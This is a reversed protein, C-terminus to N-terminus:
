LRIEMFATSTWKIFWIIRKHKRIWIKKLGEFAYTWTELEVM